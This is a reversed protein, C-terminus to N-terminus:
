LIVRFTREEEDPEIDTAQATRIEAWRNKKLLELAAEIQPESGQLELTVSGDYENRVWGTTGAAQAANSAYWRFGVGQVEGRFRYHRRIVNKKM